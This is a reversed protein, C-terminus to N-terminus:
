SRSAILVPIWGIAAMLICYTYCVILGTKLPWEFFFVFTKFVFPVKILTSLIASHEQLM